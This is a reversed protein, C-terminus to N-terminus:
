TRRLSFIKDSIISFFKNMLWGLIIFLFLYVSTALWAPLFKYFIDYRYMLPWHLLYIEYSYMGMLSLFGLRYKNMIFLGVIALAVAISIFQQRAASEGVGSYYGFYSAICLLVGALGFYIVTKLKRYDKLIQITSVVINCGWWNKDNVAWAALVGLPFAAYHLKYLRMVDNLPAPQWRVIVYGILFLLAASAWPRTKSFVWPFILYYFFLSTLYWLPSNVDGYLDATLFIGLASKAIFEWSYTINLVLWDAVYFILLTLWFPFLIKGFRRQYFQKVTLSRNLSGVCLGFGSLFLFLDVGVGAMITLPFLFRHDVVLFYGIHSFVVALIAFGKLEQTLSLPLISDTKEKPRLSLLVVALFVIIFINTNTVVDIISKVM